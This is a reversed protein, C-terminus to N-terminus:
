ECHPSQTDDWPVLRFGSLEIRGIVYPWYESGRRRPLVLCVDTAQGSGHATIRARYVFGRDYGNELLLLSQHGGDGVPLFRVRIVESSVPPPERMGVDSSRIDLANSGSTLAPDTQLTHHLAAREYDSLPEARGRIVAVAGGDDIQFSVTEGPTLPITAVTQARLLAPLCAMLVAALPILHRHRM